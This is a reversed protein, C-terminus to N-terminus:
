NIKEIVGKLITIPIIDLEKDMLLSIKKVDDELLYEYKAIHPKELNVVDCSDKFVIIFMKDGKRGNIEVLMVNMPM